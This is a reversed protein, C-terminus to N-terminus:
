VRAASAQAAPYRPLTRRVAGPLIRLLAAEVAAERSRYWVGAAIIAIGLATLAAPFLLSNRFVDFALHGLYSYVGIAGFVMFTKRQLLVAVLMLGLNILCYTVSGVGDYTLAGWFAVLGFLYLWFAYDQDTRRDLLYTVGLLIPLACTQVGTVKYDRIGDEAQFFFVVCPVSM